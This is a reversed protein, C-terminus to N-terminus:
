DYCWAGFRDLRRVATEYRRISDGLLILRPM